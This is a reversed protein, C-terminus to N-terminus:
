FMLTAEVEQQYRPQCSFSGYFGEQLVSTAHGRARRRGESGPIKEPSVRGAATGGFAERPCGGLPDGLRAKIKKSLALYFSGRLKVVEKNYRSYLGILSENSLRSSVFMGHPGFSGHRRYGKILDMEERPRRRPFEAECHTDLCDSTTGVPCGFGAAGRVLASDCDICTIENLWRQRSKLPRRPLSRLSGKARQGRCAQLAWQHRCHPPSFLGRSFSPHEQLLDYQDTRRGASQGPLGRLPRHHATSEHVVIRGWLGRVVFSPHLFITFDIFTGCTTEWDNLTAGKAGIM